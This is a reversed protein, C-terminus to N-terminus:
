EFTKPNKEIDAHSEVDLIYAGFEGAALSQATQQRKSATEPSGADVKGPNIASVKMVVFDGNDISVGRYVPNAATVAKRPLSFLDTKVQDPISSDSRTVSKKGVPTLKFETLAKVWEVGGGVRTIFETGRKTAADRAARQKLTSEIGPRMEALPVQQPPHHGAVRLVVAHDDGVQIISSNQRKEIAEQAFAAEIIKPDASLTGPTGGTRPLGPLKQVTLGLAKAPTELESLANLAEDGLKQSRDYFLATAKEATFERTLEARAEEFSKAQGGEIQELKIVHYGFQTKVPGRLEGVSMSFLAEEFPGVFTGRSAWGLDGGKDASVSDQSYQKALAVFDGGARLKTLVEDAKAKAKADDTGEEVSILIHRAMRREPLTLREKVQEYHERLAEDTVAIDKQVDALKLEVYEIDVTETTMFSAKNAEYYTQIEADSASASALFNAMPIVAYDLERQEGELAQRRELEAPTVFSSSVIGRQLQQIKLNARLEREFQPVSRGQQRLLAQYREISFKGDVQLDPVNKLTDRMEQVGARYGLDEAHQTLLQTRIHEDLLAQQQAKKLMEPIDGRMSQQMRQLREQWARNVTELSIRNGNVKAAYNSTGSASRMEVGWFIFVVAIAGLFLYAFWGTIKDRITQLM